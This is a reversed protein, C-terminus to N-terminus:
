SNVIRPLVHERLLPAISMDELAEAPDRWAIEALEADACVSGDVDEVYDVDFLYAILPTNAENAAWGQWVGRHTFRSQPLFLGIEESLERVAAEVPQEGPEPKGGPQMWKSTGKKRVLLIRGSTDLVRVASVTIPKNISDQHTSTMHTSTM